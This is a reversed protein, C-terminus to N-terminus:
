RKPRLPQVDHSAALVLKRVTSAHWVKGGQTIPVGRSNLERAVASWSKIHRAQLV